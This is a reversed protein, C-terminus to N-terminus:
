DADVAFAKLTNLDVMALTEEHTARLVVQPAADAQWAEIWRGACLCWHDGPSLGEFGLEPHPTSLDNGQAKSFALFAETMVACVTHMGQDEHSTNCCGDRYFGTLPEASCPVLAEGFVNRSEFPEM